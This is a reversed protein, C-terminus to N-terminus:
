LVGLLHVLALLALLQLGRTVAHGGEDGRGQGWLGDGAEVAILSSERAVLLWEVTNMARVPRLQRRAGAAASIVLPLHNGSMPLQAIPLQFSISDVVIVLKM